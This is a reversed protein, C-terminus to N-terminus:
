SNFRVDICQLNPGTERKVEGMEKTRTGSLGSLIRTNPLLNYTTVGFSFHFYIIQSSISSNKIFKIMTIKMKRTRSTM